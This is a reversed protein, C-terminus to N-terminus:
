PHAISSISLCVFGQPVSLPGLKFSFMARGDGMDCEIYSLSMGDTVGTTEQFHRAMVLGQLNQTPPFHKICKFFKFLRVTIDSILYIRSTLRHWEITSHTLLAVPKCGKRAKEEREPEAITRELGM